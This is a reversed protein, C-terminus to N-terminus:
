RLYDKFINEADKWSVYAETAKDYVPVFCITWRPENSPNITSHLIGTNVLSPKNTNASFLKKSEEEKATLIRVKDNYTIKEGADTVNEGPELFVEYSTPCDWWVIEGDQPGWTQNIKVYDTEYWWFDTHIPVKGGNPPTYFCEILLLDLGHDKFFKVMNLDYHNELPEHVVHDPQTNFLEPKKIEFPLTLERCYNNM